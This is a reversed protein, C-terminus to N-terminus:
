LNVDGGTRFKRLFFFSVFIFFHIELIGRKSSIIVWFFLPSLLSILFVGRLSKKEREKGKKKTDYLSFEILLLSQQTFLSRNVKEMDM